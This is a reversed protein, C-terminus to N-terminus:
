WDMRLSWSAHVSTTKFGHLAVYVVMGSMHMSTMRPHLGRQLVFSAPVGAQRTDKFGLTAKFESTVSCSFVWFPLYAASVQAKDARLLNSAQMGRCAAEQAFPHGITSTYKALHPHLHNTHARM